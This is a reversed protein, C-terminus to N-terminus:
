RGLLNHLKTIRPHLPSVFPGTDWIGDDCWLGGPMTHRLLMILGPTKKMRPHLLSHLPLLPTQPGVGKDGM